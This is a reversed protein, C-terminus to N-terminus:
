PRPLSGHARAQSLRSQQQQIYQWLESDRSAHGELAIQNAEELAVRAEELDKRDILLGCRRCLLKGLEVRRGAARLLAEGERLATWAGEYDGAKGRAEAAVGLFYGRAWRAIGADMVEMVEEILDVAEKYRGDKILVETLNGRMIAAISPDRITDHLAICDLYAREAAVTNGQMQYLTGLNGLARGEFHVSGLERCLVINQKLMAEAEAYQGLELLVGALNGVASQEVQRAGIERGIDLAQTYRHGARTLRGREQDLSGIHCYLVAEIRRHGARRIPALVANFREAAADIDGERQDIQGLGLRAVLGVTTDGSQHECDIVRALHSRALVLRGAALELLGLASHVRAVDEPAGMAEARVQVVELDTRVADWAGMNILLRARRALIRVADSIPLTPLALLSQISEAGLNLPGRAGAVEQIADAMPSAVDLAGASVAWQLGWLLEPTAAYLQGLVSPGEVTQLLHLHEPHGLRALFRAHRYRVSHAATPGTHSQGDPGIIAHPDTLFERALDRVSHLLRFRPRERVSGVVEILSHDELSELIDWVGDPWPSLDLVAEAAELSFTGRFVSCQALGFRTAPDLQQWSSELVSRLDSKRPDIAAGGARVRLLRFRDDLRDLVGRVGMLRLRAAALEIALPLGDLGELLRDVAGSPSHLLSAPDPRDNVRVQLLRLAETRPLPRLFILAQSPLVLRRRATVLIRLAPASDLWSGLYDANHQLDDLILLSPGRSHLVAGLQVMPDRGSIEVGLAGAVAGVIDGIAKLGELEVLWANGGIQDRNEAAFRSCLRTKGVGGPGVVTLVRRDSEWWDALHELDATRGVFSSPRDHIRAFTQDSAAGASLGAAAEGLSTTDLRYGEGYVSILHIPETPDLEVKKRIRTVAHHPARTQVGPAYGWVERLLEDRSVVTGSRQVLHSLLRVELATLSHTCDPHVVERRDLNVTAAGLRFSTPFPSQVPATYGIWGVGVDEGSGWRKFGAVGEDKSGIPGAACHHQTEDM